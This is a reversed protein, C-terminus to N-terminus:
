MPWSWLPPTGIHGDAPHQRFVGCPYWELLDGIAVKHVNAVPLRRTTRHGMRKWCRLRRQRLPVRRTMSGRDRGSDWCACGWVLHLDSWYPTYLRAHMRMDPLTCSIRGLWRRSVPWRCLFLVLSDIRSAAGEQWIPWTDGPALSDEWRMADHLSRPSRLRVDVQEIGDARAAQRCRTQEQRLNAPLSVLAHSKRMCAEAPGLVHLRATQTRSTRRPRRRSEPGRAASSDRSTSGFAQLSGTVDLLRTRVCEVRLAPRGCGDETEARM